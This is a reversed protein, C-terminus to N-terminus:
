TRAKLSNAERLMIEFLAAGDRPFRISANASFADRQGSTGRMQKDIADSVMRKVSLRSHNCLQRLQEVVETLDCDCYPGNHSSCLLLIESNIADFRIHKMLLEIDNPERPILVAWKLAMRLLILESKLNDEFFNEESLFQLMRFIDVSRVFDENIGAHMNDRLLTRVYKEMNILLAFSALGTTKSMERHETTM